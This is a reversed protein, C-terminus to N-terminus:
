KKTKDPALIMIMSRGEFSPRQEIISVDSLREAVDALRDLGVEPIYRERGRFRMRVKVKSGKTLWKRADRLKFNIDHEGIKPRLQIEKVETKVQSKRAHRERKSKTYMFKGFDMLRCVPPKATPAVEVLDLNADQAISLAKTTVVIGLQEGKEGILRVERARIQRNIRQKPASKQSTYRKASM